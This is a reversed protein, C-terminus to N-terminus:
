RHCRGSGSEIAWIGTGSLAANAQLFVSDAMVNMQDPGAYATTPQPSCPIYVIASPVECTFTSTINNGGTLISINQIIKAQDNGPGSYQLKGDMTLDEQYFGNIITTINTSGSENVIRQLIPGRDNGPGSYQVMCDQNIDGVIMGFMGPDIEIVALASNGFPPFNTTDSFDYSVTNPLAVMQASMVPMHNRHKVVLYYDGPGVHEFFVGAQMNTDVVQGTKLLLAARIDVITDYPRRLELLVWDVVDASINDISETGPYDWPFASYPQNEPFSDLSILNTSMLSTGPLYAGQLFVKVDATTQANILNCFFVLIVIGLPIKSYIKKM